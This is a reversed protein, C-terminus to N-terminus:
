MPGRFSMLADVAPKVTKLGLEPWIGLIIILAVLFVMAAIM